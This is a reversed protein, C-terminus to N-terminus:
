QLGSKLGETSMGIETGLPRPQVPQPSSPRMGAHGAERTETLTPCPLDGTRAPM